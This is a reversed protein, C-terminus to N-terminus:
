IKEKKNTYTLSVTDRSMASQFLSVTGVGASLRTYFLPQIIIPLPFNWLVQLFAQGQPIRDV